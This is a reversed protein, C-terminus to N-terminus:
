IKSCPTNTCGSFRNGSHIGGSARGELISDNKQCTKNFTHYSQWRRSPTKLHTSINQLSFLVPTQSCVFRPYHFCRQQSKVAKKLFIANKPM